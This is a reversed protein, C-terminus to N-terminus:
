SSFHDIVCFQESKSFFNIYKLVGWINFNIQEVCRLAAAPIDVTNM